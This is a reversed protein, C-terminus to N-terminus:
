ETTKLVADKTASKAVGVGVGIGLSQLNVGSTLTKSPDYGKYGLTTRNFIYGTATEAVVQDVPKGNFVSKFGGDISYDFSADLPTSVADAWPGPLFAGSLGKIGVGLFDVKSVSGKYAYQALFSQTASFTGRSLGVLAAGGVVGAEIYVGAGGTAVTVATSVMLPIGKEKLGTAGEWGADANASSSFNKEIFSKKKYGTWNVSVIKGGPKDYTVTLNGGHIDENSLLAAVNVTNEQVKKLEANFEPHSPDIGGYNPSSLYKRTVYAPQEGLLDIAQIPTNGAFQYPTYWPYDKTLPDVSLLRGIRPDYM